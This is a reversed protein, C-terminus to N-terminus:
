VEKVYAIGTTSGMDRLIVKENKGNLDAVYVSGMIDGFFMRKNTLDLSIGIGEHLNEVLVTKELSTVSGESASATRNVSNGGVSESGRDTWYLEGTEDNM